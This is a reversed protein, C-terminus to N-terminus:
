CIHRLSNNNRERSKELVYSKLCVYLGFLHLFPLYYVVTTRVRSTRVVGAIYVEKGTSIEM